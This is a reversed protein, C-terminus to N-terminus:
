CTKCSQRGIRTASGHRLENKHIAMPEPANECLDEVTTNHKLKCYANKKDDDEASMWPLFGKNVFYILINGIAEM